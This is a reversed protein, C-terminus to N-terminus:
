QKEKTVKKLLEVQVARPREEFEWVVRVQDGVKLKAFVALMKKDPGGGDKPQGGVWHPVYQRPEEEGFAKVQIFNPGKKTIVGTVTGGKKKEKDAGKEGQAVATGSQGLGLALSLVTLLAAARLFRYM